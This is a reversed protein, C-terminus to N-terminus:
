REWWAATGDRRRRALAARERRKEAEIPDPGRDVDIPVGMKALALAYKRRRLNAARREPSLHADLHCARCLVRLGNLDPYEPGGEHVPVVHHVEASRKDKGALCGCASCTWNEAELKRLRLRKWRITGHGTWRRAM